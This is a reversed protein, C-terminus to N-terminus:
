GERLVKIIIATVDDILKHPQSYDAVTDFLRRIIEEAPEQLNKRVTELAGDVGFMREDPSEAELIGDTLLFVVDGEELVTSRGMPFDTDANIALPIATSELEMKVKGSAGFVYGTPHGASAYAFKRTTPQLWGFFLTIFRDTEKALFRNARALIESVDQQSEVLSNLHAYLTAMLLAPGLGHGSVDGIVIGLSADPMPLYDFYDGGTFMAPFSAGAIDYGPLAPPKEPLLRAQIEQAARLSAETERLAAEAERRDTIDEVLGDYRVLTGNEHHPVITDRVWRVAGDRRVIRHEIPPVEECALIREVYRRLQDRDEPHVMDIWLYPNAVYDEPVYGTVTFCGWSHDTEVPVGRHMKVTYTYGSVATLLDCFRRGEELVVEETQKRETADRIVAVAWWHSDRRVSAVSLQVPFETGDKRLGDLEVIKGVVPGTGSRLFEALGLEAAERYRSPALVQHISRGLIERRRYGFMREAAASWYAVKGEADMMVIADLAADTITHLREESERLAEAAQRRETVDLLLLLLKRPCAEAVLPVSTVSLVRPRGDRGRITYEHPGEVPRTLADWFSSEAFARDAEDLLESFHRGVLEEPAFGLIESLRRNVCLFAGSPDLECYGYASHEVFANFKARIEQTTEQTAPAQTTAGM